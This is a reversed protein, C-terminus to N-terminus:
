PTSPCTHTFEDFLSQPPSSFGPARLPGLFRTGGFGFFLNGGRLERPQVTAQLKGFDRRTLQFVLDFSSRRPHPQPHGREFLRLLGFDGADTLDDTRANGHALLHAGREGDKGPWHIQKAQDISCDYDVAVGDITLVVRQVTAECRMKLGLDLGAPGGGYLLLGLKHAADFFELARASLHYRAHTGLRGAVIDNGSAQAYTDLHTTRFSAIAGTQPHFLPELGALEADEHADAAFPYRGVVSRQMAAYVTACWTAHLDRTGTDGLFIDLGTFPPTLLHLLPEKWAGFPGRQVMSTIDELGATVATLLAPREASNERAKDIAARVDALRKHYSDLAVAGGKGAPPPAGFAAFKALAAAVQGADGNAAPPALGPAGFSRALQEFLANGRTESCPIPPLGQTHEVVAKFLATLPTDESLEQFIAAADDLDTPSTLRVSRVFREWSRRYQESYLDRLNICRTQRSEAIQRHGLVWTQAGGSDLEVDLVGQFAGWGARTFAPQVAADSRMYHATTLGRVSVGLLDTRRDIQEIMRAVQDRDPPTRNLIERVAVVLDADREVARAHGTRACPDAPDTDAPPPRLLAVHDALAAARRPDEGEADARAWAAEVHDQLWRGQAAGWPAPEDPDGPGSLLLYARLGDFADRAADRGAQGAGSHRAAFQRLSRHARAALPALVGRCVARQYADAVLDGLEDGRFLGWDAGTPAESARWTAVAERLRDLHGLPALQGDRTHQVALASDLTTQLLLENAQAARTSGHAVAAATLALTLALAAAAAFRRRLHRRLRTAHVAAQTLEVAFLDAVFAPATAPAQVPDPVLAGGARQAFQAAWLDEPAFADPLASAFYIARLRLPDGGPLPDQALQGAAASAAAAVRGFQQWLGYLRTQRPTGPDARAVLAHCRQRVWEVVGDPAGLCAAAATQVSAKGERPPLVAGLAPRLPHLGDLLEALGALRDLQSVVLLVPAQAALARAAADIQRRTTRLDPAAPGLLADARLVVLVGALPCRPRLRQLAAFLATLAPAAAPSSVEPLELFVAGAALFFRPEDPEVPPALEQADPAAGLLASKGHGAPGLVLWWPAGGRERYRLRPPPQAAKLAAVVAAFRALLQKRRRKAERRATVRADAVPDSAAADGGRFHQLADLIARIAILLAGIGMAVYTITPSLKLLTVATATLAVLVAILGAFAIFNRM